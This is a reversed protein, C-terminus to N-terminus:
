LYNNIYSNPDRDYYSSFIIREDSMQVILTMKSGFQDFTRVDFNQSKKQTYILYFELESESDSPALFIIIPPVDAIFLHGM